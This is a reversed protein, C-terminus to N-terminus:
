QGVDDGGPAPPVTGSVTKPSGVWAITTWAVTTSRGSAASATRSWANQGAARRRRPMTVGSSAPPASTSTGTDVWLPSFRSSATPRVFEDLAVGLQGVPHQGPRDPQEDGSDPRDLLDHPHTV